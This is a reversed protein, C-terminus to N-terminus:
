ANKGPRYTIAGILASKYENFRASELHMCMKLITSNSSIVSSIGTMIEKAQAQAKGVTNGDKAELSKIKSLVEKAAKESNKLTENTKDSKGKMTKRDYSKIYTIMTSKDSSFSNHETAPGEYGYAKAIELKITKLSDDSSAGGTGVGILYAPSTYAKFTDSTNDDNKNTLDTEDQASQIENLKATLIGLVKVATTTCRDFISVNDNWDHINYTYGSMDKTGIYKDINNIQKSIKGFKMKAANLLNSLFQKVRKIMEQIKAWASKFFDGVKSELLVSKDMDGNIESVLCLSEALMFNEELTYMEANFQRNIESLEDPNEGTIWSENSPQIESGFYSEDLFDNNENLFNEIFM